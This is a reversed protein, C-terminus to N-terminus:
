TIEGIDCNFSAINGHDYHYLYSIATRQNDVYGKKFHWYDTGSLSPLEVIKVNGLSEHAIYNTQKKKHHHGKHVELYKVSEDRLTNFNESMILRALTENKEENGHTYGILTSGYELYKRTEQSTDVNIYNDANFFAKVYECLFFSTTFDHNGPIWLVEVPAVERLLYLAKVVGECGMKYIDFLNGGTVDQSTGKTTTQALNDIHFFDSGLPLVIKDIEFNDCKSLLNDIADVYLNKSYELSEENNVVMKGFHHDLLSIELLHPINKVRHKITPFQIPNRYLEETISKLAEELHNDMRKKLFITIQWMTDKYFTGDDKVHGNCAGNKWSLDIEKNKRYVQWSNTKVREVEWINTDIEAYNLADEVTKIKTSKVTVSGKDEAFDYNVSDAEEVEESVKDNETKKKVRHIRKKAATYSIDLTEAIERISHGDKLLDYIESQTETWVNM